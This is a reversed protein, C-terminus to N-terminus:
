KGGKVPTPHIDMRFAAHRAEGRHPRLRYLVAAIVAIAVLVGFARLSELVVVGSYATLRGAVVGIFWMLMTAMTLRRAKATVPQADPDAYRDFLEKLMSRLCVLGIVLSAIKVIFVVNKVYGQPATAFLVSGTVMTIWFGVAIIPRFAKMPALPLQPVLNLARVAIVLTPGVLAVMGVTHFALYLTYGLLSDSERIWTIPALNELWALYEM